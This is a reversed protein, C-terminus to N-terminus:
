EIPVVRERRTQAAITVYIGALIVAGGAIATWRPVEQFIALALVSAMVPEGTIAIAVVGAEVHALLYNFVTHGGIHPVVAMLLFLLWVKPAFGAFPRGSAAMAMALLAACTTYAIGVYTLLSVRQRLSRGALYYGAAAVAGTIALADGFVAGGSAGFDGGSIVVAGVLSLGIGLLARGSVTGGLWRGILGVWVPQTTVLVTSAAVTTYSLSPVWTAFHLALLSGSLLAIGWERRGLARLEDRHRAVALPVLIAAAIANRYFAVSLAPAEALRILIASFAVSAVGLALLALHRPSM